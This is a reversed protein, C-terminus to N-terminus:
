EQNNSKRVAIVYQELVNVGPPVAGDNAEMYQSIFTSKIRREYAEFADNEAVWTNFADWDAGQAIIKKRKYVTGTSTRASKLKAENLCALMYNGVTDLKEELKADEAEWIKKQALRMATIKQYVRVLKDFDVTAM